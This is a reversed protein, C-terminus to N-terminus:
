QLCRFSSLLYIFLCFSQLGEFNVHCGLFPNQFSLRHRTQLKLTVYLSAKYVKLHPHYIICCDSFRQQSKFCAVYNRQRRSVKQHMSRGKESVVQPKTRGLDLFTKFSLIHSQPNFILHLHLTIKQTTRVAASCVEVQCVLQAVFISTQSYQQEYLLGIRNELNDPHYSVPGPVMPTSCTGLFALVLMVHSCVAAAEATNSEAFDIYYQLRAQRVGQPPM